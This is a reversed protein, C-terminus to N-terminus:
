TNAYNEKRLNFKWANIIGAQAEKTLLYSTNHKGPKNPFSIPM